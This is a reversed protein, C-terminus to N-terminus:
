CVVGVDRIFPGEEILVAEIAVGNGIVEYALGDAVIDIFAMLGDERIFDPAIAVRFANSLAGGFM